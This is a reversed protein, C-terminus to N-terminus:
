PPSITQNAKKHQNGQFIFIPSLSSTSWNIWTGAQSHLIPRNFCLLFHAKLNQPASSQVQSNVRFLLPLTPPFPSLPCYSNQMEIFVRHKPLQPRPIWPGTLSPRYGWSGWLYPSSLHSVLSLQFPPQPMNLAQSLDYTM